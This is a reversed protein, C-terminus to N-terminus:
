GNWVAILDGTKWQARYADNALIVRANWERGGVQDHACRDITV